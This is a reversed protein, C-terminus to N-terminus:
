VENYDHYGIITKYKLDNILQKLQDKTWIVIYNLNNKIACERKEIDKVTWINIAKNYYENHMEKWTNVVQIDEKSGTYFKHNHTWFLNLEIYLDLKPLYFDCKYPYIDTKYNHEYVISLDNLISIFLDEGSSRNWGNQLRTKHRKQKAQNNHANKLAKDKVSEILFANEVNYNKLLTQKAKNRVDNDDIFTTRGYKDIMTQIRKEKANKNHSNKIMNDTQTAWKVGYKDLNTNNIKEQVNKDLSSCRTSCHKNYGITFNYYKTNNGCVPCIGENESKLYLDYYERTTMNHKVKLHNAIGKTNTKFGCLICTIDSM